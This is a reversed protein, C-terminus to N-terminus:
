ARFSSQLTDTKKETTSILGVGTAYDVVSAYFADSRLPCHTDDDYRLLVSVEGDV